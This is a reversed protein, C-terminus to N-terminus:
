MLTKKHEGADIQSGTALAIAMKVNSLLTGHADWFEAEDPTVKIVCINPDDPSDWWVKAPIAWLEKIKERGFSVEARGSISVYKQGKTDAFAVCVQPYRRIEDDKHRRRDALFTYPTKTAAFSPAWRAPTFSAGTGPPSCVYGFRASLNGCANSM